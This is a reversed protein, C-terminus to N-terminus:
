MRFGQNQMMWENYEQFTNVGANELKLRFHQYLKELPVLQRSALSGDLGVDVRLELSENNYDDIGGHCHGHVMCTGHPRRNWTLLPYHCMEVCFTENPDIFEYQNNTFKAEKIQGYWEFYHELGHLSRDHNGEILFKKGKLRSLLKETREKNGLCFDGLIYVYDERRVTSNWVDVLWEDHKQIAANRDAQLEELTIGVAEM